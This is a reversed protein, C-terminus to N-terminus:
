RFTFSPRVLGTTCSPPRPQTTTSSRGSSSLWSRRSWCAAACCPCTTPVSCCRSWCFWAATFRGCDGARWNPMQQSSKPACCTRPARSSSAWFSSMFLAPRWQEGLLSLNWVTDSECKCYAAISKGEGGCFQENLIWHPVHSQSTSEPMERCKNM